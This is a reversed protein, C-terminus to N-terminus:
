ETDDALIKEDGTLLVDYGKIGSIAIFKGSWVRWKEKESTFPIIFIIKEDM